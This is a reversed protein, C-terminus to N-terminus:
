EALRRNMAAVKERYVPSTLCHNHRGHNHERQGDKQVRRIEPYARSMWAPKGGSPTALFARIGNAHLQDLLGDMWEFTFKGEGPEYQTWSFIGVLVVNVGAKRMLRIDEELIEPYREIWQDPNYDGGNLLRPYNSIVPPHIQMCGCHGM